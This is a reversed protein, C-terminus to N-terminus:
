LPCTNSLGSMVLGGLIGLNWGHYYALLRHGCLSTHAFAEPGLALVRDYDAMARDYDIAYYYNYLDGRNMLANVYNPRLQIARDLDTLAHAYDQIVMYTYARNNYAEAYAPNLEIARSYAAIANACDGQEYAYDGLAFFDQASVLQAPMRAIPEVAPACSVVPRTLSQIAYFVVVLCLAIAVVGAALVWKRTTPFFLRRPVVGTRSSAMAGSVMLGIVVLALAFLGGAMLGVVM